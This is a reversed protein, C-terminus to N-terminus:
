PDVPLERIKKITEEMTGFLGSGSIYNTRDVENPVTRVPLDNFSELFIRLEVRSNRRTEGDKFDVYEVLPIVKQHGSPISQPFMIKKGTFAQMAVWRSATFGAGLCVNWRVANTEGASEPYGWGEMVHHRTEINTLNFAESSDFIRYCSMSCYVDIGGTKGVKFYTSFGPDIAPVGNTWRVFLLSAISEPPIFCKFNWYMGGPEFKTRDSPISELVLRGRTTQLAPATPPQVLRYRLKVGPPSETFGTIQLVGMRGSRTKFNWTAPLPVGRAVIHKAERDVLVKFSSVIEDISGDWGSVSPRFGIENMAELGTPRDAPQSQDPRVDMLEQEQRYNALNDMTNGTDLDLMFATSGIALVREVVPGFSLNQAPAANPTREQGLHLKSEEAAEAETGFYIDAFSRNNNYMSVHPLGSMPLPRSLEFDGWGQSIHINYTSAAQNPVEGNNTVTFDLWLSAEHASVLNYIGKVTMQTKSREVSTIKISDGKPFYTQGIHFDAAAPSHKLNTFYIGTKLPNAIPLRIAGAMVLVVLVSLGWEVFPRPRASQQVFVARVKDRMLVLFMWPLLVVEAGFVVFTLMAGTANNTPQGLIRAEVDLGAFLGFAKGFLWGLMILMFVIGAWVCWVTARRCFERRHLLGIGLPLLIAGPMITVNRVGNSLLMEALSWLGIFIFLGAVIFLARPVPQDAGSTQAASEQPGASSTRARRNRRVYFGATLGGAVAGLGGGGILGIMLNLFPNPRVPQDSAFAQEVIESGTEKRHQAAFANAIEAALGSSSDYFQIDFSPTSGVPYFGLAGRLYEQIQRRQASNPETLRDHWRTKLDVKAAVADLFEPSQIRGFETEFQYPDNAQGALKIRATARYTQPLLSTVTAALAFVLLGVFLAVSLARLFIASRGMPGDVSIIPQAAANKTSHVRRADSTEAITEVQTKLISAQQYRLEPKQELARLVVEDLRVDVSVKKSPPEIKKGPLEGTLMQYFVVGLAYIDARHDVEGPNDRQEPSMYQPTGMVKGADTLESTSRDQQAVAGDPSGPLDARGDNGVIKALGFDAVKVRGRRDLLINEPKIDRHVIGQDHAFQLADCIQPVIALAERASIRGAHLLQRLNVGDVFEMLFYFLQSNLTSPQYGSATGFEYLTVIGPHNLKALAKAERAFREAFAPDAGIGPPLIKLAVIRDLQKQRAKYVAGMGGKGILELLELQPFLPALETLSPPTFPPQKGDTITDSAAGLKLLCAPCLGALAGSPLLTGCQPCKPSIVETRPTNLPKLAPDPTVPTPKHYTAPEPTIAKKKARHALWLALGVAGALLVIFLAMGLLMLIIEWGGLMAGFM